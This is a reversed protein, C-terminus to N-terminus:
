IAQLSIQKYTNNNDLLDMLKQVSSEMVVGDGKDSPLIIINKNSFLTKLAALYRRPLIQKDTQCNTSAAITGQIFSKHFDSYYYRYNIDILKGM